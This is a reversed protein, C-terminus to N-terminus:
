QMKQAAEQRVDRNKMKNAPSIAKMGVDGTAVVHVLDVAKKACVKHM